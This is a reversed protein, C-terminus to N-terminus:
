QDSEIRLDTVKVNMTATSGEAIKKRFGIFLYRPFNVLHSGLSKNNVWIQVTGATMKFRIDYSFPPLNSDVANKKLLSWDYTDVRSEFDNFYLRLSGPQIENGASGPDLALVMVDHEEPNQSNSIGIWFEANFVRAAEVKLRIEAASPLARSSIGFIGIPRFKPLTLQFGEASTSFGLERYSSAECGERSEQEYLVKGTNVVWWGELCTLSVPIPTSTPSNNLVISPTPTEPTQSPAELPPRPTESAITIELQPAPQASTTQQKYLLGGVILIGGVIIPAINAKGSRLRVTGKGIEFLAFFLIVTGAIILITNVPAQLVATLVDM